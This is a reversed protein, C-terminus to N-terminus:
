FIDLVVPKEQNNPLGFYTKKSLFRITNNKKLEWVCFLLLVILFIM